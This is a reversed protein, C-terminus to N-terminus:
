QKPKVNLYMLRAAAVDDAEGATYPNQKTPMGTFKATNYLSFNFRDTLPLWPMDQMVTTIVTGMLKKQQATDSTGKFATLAKTVAPNTYRSLNSAATKGVPASYEPAFTQNYLYYPNPGGGWGWSIGMDYTGTQLGGAYSSWAQQDIQTNVGVKKLDEGIVQAMTIFDTWGAGVLIKFSPLVKGDKGLRRGQANKKYGAKTLATDAAVADFKVELNKASAPLWQQQQAPIVGSSHAADAVGAYAKEAVNKTNIAQSIARRFAPDNFPAKATNFYLYNDGTVPWYYSLNEGKKAYQGEPDSVGVYGYDAEGKLLKLLAADNGNTAYWVVADVYPQGKMWYNPNKLVRLAQQSYSDFTFPGTAVPKTNTETVPDKIASWVHEPVIMQGALYQFIPTNPKDFAFTLTNSGTAKVSTLGNKWIGSTDLAPFQKLYNFTFAADGASFPKGDNWKVGDRTTITLTKNDKSWNYKTGLVPTAKGDLPNVYFLSEYIASNTPPLHQDGPAFPNLNQAGWQSSRVVTFVNKPQQAVATATLTATLLTMVSLATRKM